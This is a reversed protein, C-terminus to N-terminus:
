KRLIFVFFLFAQEYDVVKCKCVHNTDDVM